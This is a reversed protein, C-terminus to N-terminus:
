AYVNFDNQRLVTYKTYIVVLSIYLATDSVPSTPAAGGGGGGWGGGATGCWHGGTLVLDLLGWAGARTGPRPRLRTLTMRVGGRM